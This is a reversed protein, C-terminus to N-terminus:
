ITINYNSKLKKKTNVLGQQNMEVINKIDTSIIDGYKFSGFRSMVKGAIQGNTISIPTLWIKEKKILVRIAHRSFPMGLREGNGMNSNFFSTWSVWGKGRFIIDPDSPIKSPKKIGFGGEVFEFWESKDKIFGVNERVWDMCERYTIPYKKSYLKASGFFLHWNLWGTYRYVEDPNIPITIPLKPYDILNGNLYYKWTNENLEAAMLNDQVWKEAEKYSVYNAGLDVKSIGLFDWMDVWGIGNYFVAPNKPMEKPLYKIVSDWEDVNKLEINSRVWKVADEYSFYNNSLFDDWTKFLKYEEEPNNPLNILKEKGNCYKEWEEKSSLRLSAVFEKAHYFNLYKGKYEKISQIEELAIIKSEGTNYSGKYFEWYSDGGLHEWETGDGGGFNGPLKNRPKSLNNKEEHFYNFAIEECVNLVEKKFQSLVLNCNLFLEVSKIYTDQVIDDVLRNGYRCTIQWARDILEQEFVKIKRCIIGGDYFDSIM